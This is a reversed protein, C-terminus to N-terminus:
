TTDKDCSSWVGVDFFEKEKLFFYDLLETRGPRFFYEFKDKVLDPKVKEGFSHKKLRSQRKAQLLTNQLDFLVLAKKM